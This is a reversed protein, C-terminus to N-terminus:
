LWALVCIRTGLLMAQILDIEFWKEEFHSNEKSGCNGVKVGTSFHFRFQEGHMDVITKLERFM